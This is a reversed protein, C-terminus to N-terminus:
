MLYKTVTSGLRHDNGKQILEKPRENKVDREPVYGGDILWNKEGGEKAEHSLRSDNMNDM